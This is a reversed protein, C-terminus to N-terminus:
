DWLTSGGGSTTGYFNGDNGVTLPAQPVAGNTGSFSFLTAFSGNTTVQFVTGPRDSSGGTTTGYFNGDPGLTLDPLLWGSNDYRFSGLITLTGDITIRFITGVPNLTAPGSLNGPGTLGYFYGDPGLTLGGQPRQGDAANFSSLTTL